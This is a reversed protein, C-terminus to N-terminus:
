KVIYGKISNWFSDVDKERKLIQSNFKCCYRFAAELFSCSGAFDEFPPVSSWVTKPLPIESTKVPQVCKSHNVESTARTRGWFTNPYKNLKMNKNANMKMWQVHICTKLRRNSITKNKWGANFITSVGWPGRHQCCWVARVRRQFDPLRDWPSGSSLNSRQTSFPSTESIKEVTHLSKLWGFNVLNGM